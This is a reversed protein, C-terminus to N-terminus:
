IIAICGGVDLLQSRLQSKSVMLKAVDSSVPESRFVYRKMRHSRCVFKGHSVAGFMSLAQTHAERLDASCANLMTNPVLLSKGDPNLSIKRVVDVVVPILKDLTERIHNSLDAGDKSWELVYESCYQVVHLVGWCNNGFKVVIVAEEVLIINCLFYM